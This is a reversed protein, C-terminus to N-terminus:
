QYFQTLADDELFHELSYIGESKNEKKGVIMKKKAKVENLGLFERKPVRESSVVNIAVGDIIFDVENNGYWYYLNQRKDFFRLAVANEFLKSEENRISFIHFFGSDIIYYKSVRQGIFKTKASFSFFPVEFILYVNEALSLYSKITNISIGLQKSLKNASIRIGPNLMIFKLMEKLQKHNTLDYKQVLDKEVITDFYNMLLTRKRQEDKELVVEPFGGYKLFERIGGKSFDQFEKFSLPLIEFTISRGTLLTSFDKSLISSNSGSIIFKVNTGMDYHTKLWKEFGQINQIEDLFLYLKKKSLHLQLVKELLETSLFGLFRYDDLNVYVCNEMKKIIQMMITTKGCRRVGKLILIEKREIYNIIEDTYDKRHIGSRIKYTSLVQKIESDSLM